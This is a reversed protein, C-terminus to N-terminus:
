QKSRASFVNHLGNESDGKEPEDCGRSSQRLGGELVELGLEALAVRGLGLAGHSGLGEVAVPLGHLLQVLGVDGGTALLNEAHGREEVHVLLLESLEVQGAKLHRLLHGLRGHTDVLDAEAAVDGVGDVPDALAGGGRDLVLRLATAAPREGGGLGDLRGVEDGAVRDLLEGDLLDDVAVGGVAAALTAVGGSGELVHDAGTAELALLVVRVGSTAALGALALELLAVDNLGDAAPAVGRLGLVLGRHLVGHGLLARQGDADVGLAPLEVRAADHLRSAAARLEVVGDLGDAVVHVVLVPVDAVAPTGAPTLVAEDAELVALVRATDGLQGRVRSGLRAKPVHLRSQRRSYCM